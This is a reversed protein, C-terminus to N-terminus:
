DPRQKEPIIGILFLNIPSYEELRKDYEPIYNYISSIFLM